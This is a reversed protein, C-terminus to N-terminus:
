QENEKLYELTKLSANFADEACYIKDLVEQLRDATGEDCDDITSYITTKANLVLIRAKQILDLMESIENTM